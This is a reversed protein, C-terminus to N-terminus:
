LSDKDQKFTYIDATLQHKIRVTKVTYQIEQM